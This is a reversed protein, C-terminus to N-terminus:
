LVVRADELDADKMATKMASELHSIEFGGARRNPTSAARVM